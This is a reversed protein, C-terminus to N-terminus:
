RGWGWPGREKGGGWWGSQISAGLSLGPLFESVTWSQAATTVILFVCVCVCRSSCCVCVPSVPLCQTWELLSASRPLRVLVSESPGGCM